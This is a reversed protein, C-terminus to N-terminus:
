LGGPPLLNRDGRVAAVIELLAAQAPREGGLLYGALEPDSLELLGAFALRQEGTAGQFGAALWGQLLLDLEKIGRRCRWALKAREASL